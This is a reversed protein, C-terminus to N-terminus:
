WLSDKEKGHKKLHATVAKDSKNRRRGGYWHWLLNLSQGCVGQETQAILLLPLGMRSQDRHMATMFIISLEIM